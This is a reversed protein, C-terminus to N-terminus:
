IAHAGGGRCSADCRIAAVLDGKCDFTLEYSWLVMEVKVGACLSIDAV